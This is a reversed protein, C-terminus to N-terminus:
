HNKGPPMGGQHQMTIETIQSGNVYVTGGNLEALGDADFASVANVSITGGNIYLNGNADFGDTDGSAMDITITGGNVEIVVDLSSKRTANVGDDTSYIDITGGNIQVYTGEIGETCTSINITGGDIQVISNGRVADDYASIDLHGGYIYIYGLSDDEDNESHLGDKYTVITIDGDYIRISDNAELADAKSQILLSGGTVKLDDKSTIGNGQYSTVSLAGSGNLVLDSKSFIVADLNVDGDSEYEGTVTLINEGLSTIFVKDGSKIYVAPKSDNEIEVSDLVLQVKAEDDVDVVIMANEVTGSIVYVGEQDLLLDQNDELSLYTAEDEDYSPDLDRATFMESVDLASGENVLIQGLDSQSEVSTESTVDSADGSTVFTRTSTSTDEVLEQVTAENANTCSVLALMAVLILTIIKKM